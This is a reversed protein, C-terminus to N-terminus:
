FELGEITFFNEHSLVFEDGEYEDGYWDNIIYDICGVVRETLEDNLGM